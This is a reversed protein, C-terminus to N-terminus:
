FLLSFLLFEGMIWSVAYAYLSGSGVSFKNGELRGGEGGVYYLGPGKLLYDCLLLFELM